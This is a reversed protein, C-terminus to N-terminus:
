GLVRSIPGATPLSTLGDLGGTTATLHGQGSKTICPAPDWQPPRAAARNGGDVLLGKMGLLPHCSFSSSTARHVHGQSRPSLIVRLRPGGSPDLGCLVRPGQQPYGVAGPAQPPSIVPKRKDGGNRTYVQNQVQWDGLVQRHLEEWVPCASTSLRRPPLAHAAM